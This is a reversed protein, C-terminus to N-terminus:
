FSFQNAVFVNQNVNIKYGTRTNFYFDSVNVETDSEMNSGLDEDYLNVFDSALVM